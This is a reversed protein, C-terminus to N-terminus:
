DLLDFKLFYSIKRTTEPLRKTLVDSINSHTNIWAVSVVKAAVSLRVFHHTIASHKKNLSSEVLTTNEVVGENECFVYTSLDPRNDYSLQM